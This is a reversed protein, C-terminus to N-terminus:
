ARHYFPGPLYKPVVSDGPGWAAETKRNQRKGKQRKDDLDSWLGFYSNSFLSNCWMGPSLFSSSGSLARGRSKLLSVLFLWGFSRRIDGIAIRTCSLGYFMTRVRYLNHRVLFWREMVLSPPLISTIYAALMEEVRYQMYGNQISPGGVVLYDFSIYFHRWCLGKWWRLFDGLLNWKLM